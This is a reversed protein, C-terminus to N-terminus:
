YYFSNLCYIKLKNVKKKYIFSNLYYKKLKSIQKKFLKLLVKRYFFFLKNLYTIKNNKMLGIKNKKLIFNRYELKYKKIFYFKRKMLKYLSYKEFVKGCCNILLFKNRVYRLNKIFDSINFRRFKLKIKHVYKLKYRKLNKIKELYKVM